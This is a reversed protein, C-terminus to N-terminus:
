RLHHALLVAVTAVTTATAVRWALRHRMPRRGVTLPAKLPVALTPSYASPRPSLHGDDSVYFRISMTNM